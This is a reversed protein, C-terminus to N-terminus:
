RSVGFPRSYSKTYRLRVQDGAKAGTWSVPVPTQRTHRPVPYLLGNGKCRNWPNTDISSLLMEEHPDSTLNFHEGAMMKPTTFTRSADTAARAYEDSGWSYDPFTYTTNANTCTATWWLWMDTDGDNEVIFTTSGSGDAPITYDQVVSDGVYLPNEGAATVVLTSDGLLHPDKGNTAEDEYAVPEQLLRLGLSRSGESTRFVLQGEKDYDWSLRFNSDIDRWSFQDDPSWIRFGIVPDRRTYSFNQYVQRTGSKVWYTEAPADILHTPKPLLLVGEKECEDGSIHWVSGDWGHWEVSLDTRL